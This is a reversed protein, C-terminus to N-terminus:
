FPERPGESQGGLEELAARHAEMAAQLKRRQERAKAQQAPSLVAQIELWVAREELLMALRAESAAGHLDRLQAETTDTEAMADRVVRDRAELAQRRTTSATRHGDLINRISQKQAETLDLEKLQGFPPPPPQAPLMAGASLALALTFFLRKTM